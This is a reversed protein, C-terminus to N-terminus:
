RDRDALTVQIGGGSVSAALNYIFVGLTGLVSWLLVNLLGVAGAYMFINGAGVVSESGDGVVDSLAGGLRDWVGMGLLLLYLVGIAVMWVIFLAFMLSLITTFASWPDIRRLIVTSQMPGRRVRQNQAVVPTPKGAAGAAPASSVGGAKGESARFTQTRGTEPSSPASQAQGGTAGGPGQGAPPNASNTPDTM